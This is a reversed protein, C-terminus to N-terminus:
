QLTLASQFANLNQSALMQVPRPSSRRLCCIRAPHRSSLMVMRTPSRFKLPPDRLFCAQNQFLVLCLWLWISSIGACRYTCFPKDKRLCWCCNLELQLPREKCTFHMTPYFLVAKTEEHNTSPFRASIAAVCFFKLKVQMKPKSQWRACNKASHTVSTDTESQISSFAAILVICLVLKQLCTALLITYVLNIRCENQALVHSICLLAQTQRHLFTCVHQLISYMSAALFSLTSLCVKCTKVCDQSKFRVNFFQCLATHLEQTTNKTCALKSPHPTFVVVHGIDLIMYNYDRHIWERVNIAVLGLRENQIRFHPAM